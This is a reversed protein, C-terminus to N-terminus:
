KTVKRKFSWFKQIILPKVEPSNAESFWVITEQKLISEKTNAQHFLSLVSVALSTSSVDSTLGFRWFCGGFFLGVRSLL